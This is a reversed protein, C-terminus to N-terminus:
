LSAGVLPSRTYRPENIVRQIANFLGDVTLTEYDVVLAVGRELMQLANDFQDSFLPIAVVPVGRYLSEYVSNIGAHSVFTRLKKHGLLDNQPLWDRIKINPSLSSPIYGAILL